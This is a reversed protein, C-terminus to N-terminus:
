TACKSLDHLVLNEWTPIQYSFYM